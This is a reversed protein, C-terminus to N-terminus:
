EEDRFLAPFRAEITHCKPDILIRGIEATVEEDLMFRKIFKGTANYLKLSVYVEGTAVQERAVKYTRGNHIVEGLADILKPPQGRDYLKHDSKM